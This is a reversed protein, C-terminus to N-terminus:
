FGADTAWKLQLSCGFDTAVECTWHTGPFRRKPDNEVSVGSAALWDM